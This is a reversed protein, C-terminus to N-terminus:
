EPSTKSMYLGLEHVGSTLKEVGTIGFFCYKKHRNWINGWTMQPGYFGRLMNLGVPDM